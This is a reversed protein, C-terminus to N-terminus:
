RLGRGSKLGVRCRVSTAVRRIRILGTTAQRRALNRRGEPPAVKPWVARRGRVYRWWGQHKREFTHVDGMVQVVQCAVHSHDM